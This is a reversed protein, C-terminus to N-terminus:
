RIEDNAVELENICIEKNLEESPNRQLEKKIGVYLDVSIKGSIKKRLLNNQLEANSCKSFDEEQCSDSLWMYFKYSDYTSKDKSYKKLEQGMNTLVLRGNNITDFKYDLSGKSIIEDNKILIWKLYPSLLNCDINLDSLSIDYIINDTDNLSSGGVLFDIEIVNDDNTYITNDLIPKFDLNSSDFLLEGYVEEDLRITNVYFSDEPKESTSTSAYSIGVIINLIVMIYFVLIKKDSFIGKM